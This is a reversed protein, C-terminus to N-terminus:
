AAASGWLPTSIKSLFQAHAALEEQTPATAPRSVFFPHVAPIELFEGLGAEVASAAAASPAQGAGFLTHKGLLHVYVKALLQSDLLAGHYARASGDIGFRKILADLSASAGQFQKRALPLTDVVPNTLVPRHTRKLEANIFGIDFPANHAVLTDSGVFDLFEDVVDAFVPKDMLMAWTFGHIRTAELPIDRDPNLLVHFTKGTEVYDVLEVAGIEIVRDGDDLRTGTTETDFCLHRETM